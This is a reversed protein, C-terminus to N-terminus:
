RGVRERLDDRHSRFELGEYVTFFEHPDVVRPHLAAAADVKSTGFTFLEMVRLVQRSTFRRGRALDLLLRARADDTWENALAALVRDLEAESMAGRGRASPPAISEAVWLLRETNSAMRTALRRTSEIRDLLERRVDSPPLRRALDRLDALDRRMREGTREARDRQIRIEEYLSPGRDRSAGAPLSTLLVLCATLVFLSRHTM